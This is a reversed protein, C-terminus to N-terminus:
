SGVPIVGVLRYVSTLSGGYSMLGGAVAFERYPAIAPVGRRLALAALQESRRNFLPDTGIELARAQLKELADFAADFGRESSSHLVHVQVGLTRAAVQADRSLREVNPNAPNVLLAIDTAGPVLERLLELRKQGLEVSLTTVGTINAGPRSLSPVLKAEIPDLGTQFVIPITTTAAKAAPGSPAGGTAAIV